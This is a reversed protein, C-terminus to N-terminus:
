LFYNVAQVKMDTYEMHGFHYHLFLLFVCL